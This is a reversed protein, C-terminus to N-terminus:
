GLGPQGIQGAPKAGFRWVHRRLKVMQQRRLFAVKEAAIVPKRGSLNWWLYGSLRAASGLGAPPNTLRSCCKLLEFVPHNGLSADEMGWRFFGRWKGGATSTPRFHFVRQDPRTNVEWGLFQAELQALSDSGGTFLPTYGGIQDFCKRRFMQIGGAVSDPSNGRRCKWQGNIREYIYGGAIGLRPTRRFEELITAYYDDREPAVDADQVGVFEFDMPRALAYAAQLAKYQSGFNRGDGSGASHLRIFPHESAFRTIISATRDTSGDDIIFWALPRITQRVVSQIAETIYGEENKAATLLIYRNHSM